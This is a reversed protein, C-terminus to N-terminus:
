SNLRHHCLEWKCVSTPLAHREEFSISGESINGNKSRYWAFWVDFPIAERRINTNIDSICVNHLPVQYIQEVNTRQLNPSQTRQPNPSPTRRPNPSPTRRPNPSPTNRPNPSQTNRPNPSQTNRPIPSQTNRPIPSQSKLQNINL